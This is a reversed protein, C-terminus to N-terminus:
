AARETAGHGRLQHEAGDLKGGVVFQAAGYYAILAAEARNHDLKREFYRAQEPFLKLARQRSDEKKTHLLGHYRKWASAEVLRSPILLGEIIAELAGVARGYNFGSSAGQDPMAQAREIAAIDCGYSRIWKIAWAVDIRKKAGEGTTQLSIAGVLYPGHTLTREVVALGGSLGPDVGLVRM